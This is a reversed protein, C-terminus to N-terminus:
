IHSDQKNFNGKKEWKVAEKVLNNILVDTIRLLPHLEDLVVHVLEIELLPEHECSYKDQTV